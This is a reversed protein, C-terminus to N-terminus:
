SRLFTASTCFLRFGPDLQAGDGAAYSARVLSESWTTRLDPGGRVGVRHDASLDDRVTRNDSAGGETLRDGREISGQPAM